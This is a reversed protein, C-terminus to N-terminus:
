DFAGRDPACLVHQRRPGLVRERLSVRAAEIRLGAPMPWGERGPPLRFYLGGHFLIRAGDATRGMETLVLPDVPQGSPEKSLAYQEALTPFIFEPVYRHSYPMIREFQTAADETRGLRRLLAAYLAHDPGFNNLMHVAVDFRSAAEREHGQALLIEAACWHANAVLHAHPQGDRSPGLRIVADLRALAAKWAGTRREITALNYHTEAHHPALALAVEYYRRVRVTLPEVGALGTLHHYFVPEPDGTGGVARFADMIEQLVLYHHWRAGAQHFIWAAAEKWTRLAARNYWPTSARLSSLLEKALAVSETSLPPLTPQFSRPVIM